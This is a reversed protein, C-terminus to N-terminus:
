VPLLESETYKVKEIKVTSPNEEIKGTVENAFITVTRSARNPTPQIPM